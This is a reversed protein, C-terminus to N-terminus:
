DIRKQKVKEPDYTPQDSRSKWEAISQQERKRNETIHRLYEDAELNADLYLDSIEGLHSYM